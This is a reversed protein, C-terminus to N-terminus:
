SFFILKGGEEQGLPCEKGGTLAFFIELARERVKELVPNM